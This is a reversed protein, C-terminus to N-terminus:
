FAFFSEYDVINGGHVNFIGYRGTIAMCMCSVAATLFRLIHLLLKMADLTILASINLNNFM